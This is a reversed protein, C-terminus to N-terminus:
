GEYPSPHGYKYSINVIKTLM